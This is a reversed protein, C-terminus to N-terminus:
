DPVLKKLKQNINITQSPIPRNLSQIYNIKGKISQKEKILLEKDLVEANRDLFCAKERLENMFKNTPQVKHKVLAVGTIIPTENNTFRLTKNESLKYGHRVVIKKMTNLLSDDVKDGSLTIDDAYVTMLANRSLALNRMEDFMKINSLYCLYISVQSGTPLHNNYCCIKSLIYSIDESCLMTNRFFLRIMNQNTSQYFSKLDFTLVQRAGIHSKANTLYSFKKKFSHLWSPTEIRSLLNALRNHLLYLTNIPVQIERGKENLFVNYESHNSSSYKKLEDLEIKLIKALRKKNKLKYLLSQHLPYQKKNKIKLRNKNNM